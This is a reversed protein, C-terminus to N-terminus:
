HIGSNDDNISGIGVIFIVPNKGTCGPNLKIFLIRLAQVAIERTFLQSM